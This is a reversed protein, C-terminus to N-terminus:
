PHYSSSLLLKTGSLKWLAEWFHFTFRPDRDSVITKPMGFKLVVHEYFLAAVEASTLQKEGITIPILVVYKSYRDICTLIGNYTCNHLTSDPLSAIFDM